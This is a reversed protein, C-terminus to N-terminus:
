LIPNPIYILSLTCKWNWHKPSRWVLVCTEIEVLM